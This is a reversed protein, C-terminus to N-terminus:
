MFPMIKVLAELLYCGLRKANFNACGGALFIQNTFQAIETVPLPQRAM